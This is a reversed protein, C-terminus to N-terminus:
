DFEKTLFVGIKVKVRLNGNSYDFKDVAVALYFGSMKRKKMTARAVDASEKTPAIQVTGTAELKAKIANAVVGEVETQARGTSNAITSLAIYYRASPNDKLKDDGGTGAGGSASISEVAREIAIKVGDSGESSLRGRLCPLATPRGLRKMAVASAQRVVETSDKLAGCLPDVAADENSAGLALAASTRVRPDDSQLKEALFKVREADAFAPTGLALSLVVPV